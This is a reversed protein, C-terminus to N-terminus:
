KQQQQENISIQEEDRGGYIRYLPAALCGAASTLYGLLVIPVILM